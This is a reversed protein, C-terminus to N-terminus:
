LHPPHDAARTRGHHQTEVAPAATAEIQEVATPAPPADCIWPHDPICIPYGFVIDPVCQWTKDCCSGATANTINCVHCLKAQCIGSDPTAPVFGALMNNAMALMNANRLLLGAVGPSAFVKEEFCVLATSTTVHPPNRSARM